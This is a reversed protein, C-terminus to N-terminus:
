NQLLEILTEIAFDVSQLRVDQRSGDFHKEFTFTKGNVFLGICVTGVPTQPTGGSPGAVGSFAVGVECGCEKAVGNAMEFVVEQSVVGFTEITQPNVGCYKQKAENSYTVVSADLVKSANPVNVITSAFMGGTLSEASAIKYNKSILLDVLKTENM